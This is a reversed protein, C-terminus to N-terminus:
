MNNHIQARACGEAVASEFQNHETVQEINDVPLEKIDDPIEEQDHDAIPPIVGPNEVGPNEVGPNEAEKIHDDEPGDGV